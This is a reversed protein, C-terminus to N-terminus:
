FPLLADLLQTGYRPEQTNSMAGRGGYSIRAEAVRNYPITNDSDVDEPRVIGAILLERCERDVRFEQRGFIVLNGNPLVQVVTAAVHTTIKEYRNIKATANHQPTSVVNLLDQGKAGVPMVKKLLGGDKGVFGSANVKEVHDRHLTTNNQLDAKDELEVKVTLIDGVRCARQDKFFSRSGALWLSNPMRQVSVPRPMPMTVHQYDPSTTPNRIGTLQPKAGIMEIREKLGVCASLCLLAGGLVFWELLIQLRKASAMKFRHLTLLITMM